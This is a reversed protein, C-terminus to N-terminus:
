ADDKRPSENRGRRRYQTFKRKNQAYMKDRLEQLVDGDAQGALKPMYEMLKTALVGLAAAALVQRAKEPDPRGYADLVSNLREEVLVLDAATEANQLLIDRAMALHLIPMVREREHERQRDIARMTQRGPYLVDEVTVDFPQEPVIQVEKDESFQYTMRAPMKALEDPTVDLVEVGHEGTRVAMPSTFPGAARWFLVNVTSEGVSEVVVYSIADGTPTEQKTVSMSGDSTVLGRQVGDQVGIAEYIHSAPRLDLLEDIQTAIVSLQVQEPRSHDHEM